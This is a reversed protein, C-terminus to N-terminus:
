SLLSTYNTVIVRHIDQRVYIEEDSGQMVQSCLEKAEEILGSSLCRDILSIAELEDLDHIKKGEALARRILQMHRFYDRQTSAAKSYHPLHAEDFCEIAKTILLEAESNQNDAGVDVMSAFDLGRQKWEDSTLLGFESMSPVFAGALQLNNLYRFFLSGAVSPRTEAIILRDCCRTIATYLMKLQSEVQPAITTGRGGSLGGSLLEKWHRQDAAPINCFFDVLLVEPFQKDICIKCITTIFILV